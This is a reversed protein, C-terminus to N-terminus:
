RNIENWQQRMRESQERARQESEIAEMMSRNREIDMQMEYMQQKRDYERDQRILQDLLSEEAMCVSGMFGLMILAIWLKKM